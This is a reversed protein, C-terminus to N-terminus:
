RSAKIGMHVVVWTYCMPQRVLSASLLGPPMKGLSFLGAMLVSSALTYRPRRAGKDSLAESPTALVLEIAGM